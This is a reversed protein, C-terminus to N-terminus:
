FFHNKQSLDNCRILIQKMFEELQYISTLIEDITKDSNNLM